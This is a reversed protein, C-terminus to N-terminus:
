PQSRALCHTPDMIPNRDSRTSIRHRGHHIAGSEGEGQKANPVSCAKSLQRLTGATIPDGLVSQVTTNTEIKRVIQEAIEQVFILM